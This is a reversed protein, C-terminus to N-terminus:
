NRVEYATYPKPEVFGLKTALKASIENHADWCPELGAEICYLIMASATATALDRGRYDPHTQIEFELSRSSIAFSSCGSVFRGDHEIGFGAGRDIFDALSEFNYVLSDALKGFREADAREIRKLEFGDPLAAVFGCLREREWTPPSSFAVRTRTGLRDGWARRLLPEWAASSAALSWPADLARVTSEAAPASPDGGLFYFDLDLLAVRPSTLGDVWAKGMNGEFVAHLCGHLGPFGDFLPRLVARKDPAVETLM